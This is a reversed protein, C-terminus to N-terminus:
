GTTHAKPEPPFDLRFDAEGLPGQAPLDEAGHAAGEEAHEEDKNGDDQYVQLEKDVRGVSLQVGLDVSNVIAIEVVGGRLM